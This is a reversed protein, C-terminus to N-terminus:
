KNVQGLAVPGWDSITCQEFKILTLTYMCGGQPGTPLDGM